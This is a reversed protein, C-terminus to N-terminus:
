QTDDDVKTSIRLVIADAKTIPVMWISGHADIKEVLDMISM